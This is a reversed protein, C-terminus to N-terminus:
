PRAGLSLPASAPVCPARRDADDSPILGHKALICSIRQRVYDRDGAGAAKRIATARVGFEPWPDVTDPNQEIRAELGSELAQLRRVLATRTQIMNPPHYPRNEPGAHVRCFGDAHLAEGTLAAM